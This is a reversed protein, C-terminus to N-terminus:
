KFVKLFILVLLAILLILFTVGINLARHRAALKSGTEKTMGAPQPIAQIKKSLEVLHGVTEELFNPPPKKHFFPIFPSWRAKLREGDLEFYNFGAQFISGVRHTIEPNNFLTFAFHPTLTQIRYQQDFVPDGTQVPSYLRMKVLLWHFFSPKHIVFHGHVPCALSLIFHSPRRRRPGGGGAYFDYQYTVGHATATGEKRDDFVFLGVKIPIYHALFKVRRQRYFLWLFFAVFIILFLQAAKLIDNVETKNNGSPLM